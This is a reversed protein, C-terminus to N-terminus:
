GFSSILKFKTYGKVPDSEMVWSQLWIGIMHSMDTRVANYVSLSATVWTGNQWLTCQNTECMHGNQNKGDWFLKRWESLVIEQEHVISYDFVHFAHKALNTM